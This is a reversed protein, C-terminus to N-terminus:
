ANERVQASVSADIVSFALQVETLCRNMVAVSEMADRVSVTALDECFKVRDTISIIAEGVSTILRMTANCRVAVSVNPLM